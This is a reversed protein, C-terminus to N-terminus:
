IAAPHVLCVKLQPRIQSAGSDLREDGGDQWETRTFMDANEASVGTLWWGARWEPGGAQERLLGTGALGPQM